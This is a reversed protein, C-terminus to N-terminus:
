SAGRGRHVIITTTVSAWLVGKMTPAHPTPHRARNWRNIEKAKADADVQSMGSQYLTPESEDVFHVVLDASANM